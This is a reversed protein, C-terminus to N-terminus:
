MKTFMALKGGIRIFYIGSAYGYLKKKVKTENGEMKVTQEEITTGIINTIEMTYVSGAEGRIIVEIEDEGPNPVIKIETPQFLKVQSFEPMCIGTTTLSGDRTETEVVANKWEFKEIRLPTTRNSALLVEGCFSGITTAGEGINVGDARLSVVREGNEFYYEPNDPLFATADFRITAQYSLNQIVGAQSRAQLPICFGKTGILATTDPLWVYTKGSSKAIIPIEFVMDCPFDLVVLITDVVLLKGQSKYAVNFEAVNGEELQIPTTAEVNFESTNHKLRVEKIRIKTNSLNRLKATKVAISDVAVEGFDILDIGAVEIIYNEINIETHSRCGNTDVVEVSYTGPSDVEISKTTDGTSWNYFLYNGEVVLTTPKGPCLHDDGTIKPSIPNVETITIFATDKCGYENEVEVWFTGGQSITIEKESSGNSWHYIYNGDPEARLKLVDGKCIILKGSEPTIKAQPKPLQVVEITDYGDCGNIDEIHLWYRGGRTIRIKETTEGTSWLLQYNSGSLPSTLTGEGGECLVTDGLIEFELYPMEEVQITDRGTCGNEDTVALWYTGGATVTITDTTEGTSWLYRYKPGKPSAALRTAKGKCITRSGIIKAPVYVSQIFVTDYGFCGLSDSVTVYYKGPNWVKISKTTDGTSWFYYEYNKDLTIEITDGLCIQKPAIIKPSLNHVDVWISDTIESGSVSVSVKYYGSTTPVLSPSQKTSSFGNPGTWQFKTPRKQPDSLSVSLRLTDGICIPSNSSLELWLNYGNYITWPFRIPVRDGFFVATDIFKVDKADGDPNTIASLLHEDPFMLYINGDPGIKATVELDLHEGLKEKIKVKSQEIQNMDNSYTFQFIEYRINLIKNIYSGVVSLPFGVGAYIKQKNPSFIVFGPYCSDCVKFSNFYSFKGTYSDFKILAVYSHLPVLYDQPAGSWEVLTDVTLFPIIPLRSLDVNLVEPTELLSYHSSFLSPLSVFSEVSDVIGKNTFLYSKLSNSLSGYPNGVIWWDINNSHKFAGKVYFNKIYFTRVVDGLGNRKTIDIVHVKTGLVSDEKIFYPSLLSLYLKNSGPYNIIISADFFYSLTDKIGPLPTHTPDFVEFPLPVSGLPLSSGSYFLLNGSSDSITAACYEFQLKCDFLPKPILGPTNFTVACRDPFYWNYNEKQGLLISNRILVFVL